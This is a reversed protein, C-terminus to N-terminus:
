GETGWTYLRRRAEYLTANRQRVEDSEYTVAVVGVLVVFAVSLVAVIRMSACVGCNSGVDDNSAVAEDEDECYVAVISIALDKPKTAFLAAQQARVRRQEKRNVKAPLHSRHKNGYEQVHVTRGPPKVFGPFKM